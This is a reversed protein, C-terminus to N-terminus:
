EGSERMGFATNTPQNTTKKGKKSRLANKEEKRDTFLDAFGVGGDHTRHTLVGTFRPCQTVATNICLDTHSESEGM